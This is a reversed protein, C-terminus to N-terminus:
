KKAVVGDYTIQQCPTGKADIASHQEEILSPIVMPNFDNASNNTDKYIPNGNADNGLYKRRVSHFYRDKQGDVTGCHTYGRDITEPLLQWLYKSQVGCNVGDIIWEYPIKYCHQMKKYETGKVIMTYEYDYKYDNLYTEKGVPPRAIVYSRFGRNHLVFFSLTYCYWKDLNPVLPSDFDQHSPSTSVDYWEFNVKSLDFSNPNNTKHDIGTDAIIFREGPKVPHDKGSGPVVYIAHTAFAENSIDPDIKEYKFACNFQSECFAIGDAYLTQDTGNYLVVYNDGHYQKGAPSLTGTFFIEQIIFDKVIPMIRLNLELPKGGNEPSLLSAEGIQAVLKGECPEGQLSYKGTAEYTVEYLGAEIEINELKDFSSSKGTTKNKLSLTENTKVFNIVGEPLNLKVIVKVIESGHPAPVPSNNPNCAQIAGLLIPLMVLHFLPKLKNRM